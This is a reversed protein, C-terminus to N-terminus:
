EWFRDCHMDENIMWEMYLLTCKDIRFGLGDWRGIRGRQYSYTQKWLRHIQKQKIFLNIQIKKKSEMYLHYWIQRERVENLRFIELDTQTAVFPMIENKKHSLLIENHIHIGDEKDLGRDTSMKTAEIDQSNYISSWHVNPHM